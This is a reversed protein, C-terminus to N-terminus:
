TDPTQKSSTLQLPSTSSMPSVYAIDFFLTTLLKIFHHLCSLTQTKANTLPQSTPSMLLPYFVFPSSHKALSMLSPHVFNKAVNLIQSSPSMMSTLALLNKTIVHAVKAGLKPSIKM